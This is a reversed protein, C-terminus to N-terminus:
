KSRTKTKKVRKTKKTKKTKKSTRTKKTKKSTRTKKSKRKRGGSIICDNGLCNPTSQDTSVHDNNSSTDSHLDPQDLQQLLNNYYQIDENTANVDIFIMDMTYGLEIFDPVFRSILHELMTILENLHRKFIITFEERANPNTNLQDDLQSNIRNPTLNYTENFWQGLFWTVTDEKRDIRAIHDDFRSMLTQIQMRRVTQTAATTRQERTIGTSDHLEETDRPPLPEKGGKKTTHKSYTM